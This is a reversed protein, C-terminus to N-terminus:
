NTIKITDEWNQINYQSLYLFVFKDPHNPDELFYKASNTETYEKSCREALQIDAEYNSVGDLANIAKQSVNVVAINFQGKQRSKIQCIASVPKVLILRKIAESLSESPRKSFVELHQGKERYRTSGEEVFYSYYIYIKNGEEKIKVEGDGEIGYQFSIGLLKSEYTNIYTLNPSRYDFTFTKPFHNTDVYHIQDGRFFAPAPNEGYNYVNSAIVKCWYTNCYELTVDYTFVISRNYGAWPSENGLPQGHVSMLDTDMKGFIVPATVEKKLLNVTGTELDIMYLDVTRNGGISEGAQQEDKQTLKAVFIRKQDPSVSYNVVFMINSDSAPMNTGILKEWTVGGHDGKVKYSCIHYSRDAFSAIQLCAEDVPKYQPKVVWIVLGAIIGVGLLVSAVIRIWVKSKPKPPVIPTNVLLTTPQPPTVAPPPSSEPPPIFTQEM